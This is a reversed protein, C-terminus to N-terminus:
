AYDKLCIILLDKVRKLKNDNTLFAQANNQLCAALQLADPLLIKYRARLGAAQKAMTYNLEILEFNPLKSFVTEYLEVVKQDKLEIPKTLVEAPTIISTIIKLKNDSLREFVVSCLSEYKKNQEFKYIFISSDVGIRKLKKLQNRFSIIKAM